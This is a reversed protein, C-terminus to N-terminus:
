YIQSSSTWAIRIGLIFCIIALSGFMWITIISTALAISSIAVFTWIGAAFALAFFRIEYSLKPKFFISILHASFAVLFLVFILYDQEIFLKTLWGSMIILSLWDVLMHSPGFIYKEALYSILAIVGEFRKM